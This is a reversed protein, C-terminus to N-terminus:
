KMIVIPSKPEKIKAMLDFLFNSGGSIVWGTIAIELLVSAARFTGGVFFNTGFGFAIIEGWVLAIVLFTDIGVIKEPIKSGVARKTWETLREVIIAAIFLATLNNADM